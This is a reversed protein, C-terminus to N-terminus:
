VVLRESNFQSEYTKMIFSKELTIKELKDIYQITGKKKMVSKHFESRNQM